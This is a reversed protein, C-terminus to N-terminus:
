PSISAPNRRAVVTNLHQTSTAQMVAAQGITLNEDDTSFLGNVAHYFKIDNFGTTELVFRLYDHTFPSELTGYRKMEECMLNEQEKNDPYWRGEGFIALYGADDLMEYVYRLAKREDIMHHLTEYFFVSSAKISQREDITLEELTSIIFQFRDKLTLDYKQEFRTIRERTIDVLERCPEIAVVRYGLGLLFETLWGPGCGVEVM